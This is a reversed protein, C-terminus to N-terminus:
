SILWLNLIKSKDFSIRTNHHHQISQVAWAAEKRPAVLFLSSCPFVFVFVGCSQCNKVALSWNQFGWCSQNLSGSNPSVKWPITKWDSLRTWSEPVGHVSAHWAERDKVTEWLKSLSRDMWDTIGDLWRTRTTEKEEQRWDKGADPDKRILRSKGDPPWLILAEAEDDPFPPSCNGPHVIEVGGM